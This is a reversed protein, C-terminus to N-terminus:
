GAQGESNVVPKEMDTGRISIAWFLAAGVVGFLAGFALSRLLGLWSANASVNNTVIALLVIVAFPLNGLIVGGWLIQRLRLPGRKLFWVVVPFAGCVTVLVAALGAALAISMAAGPRDTTGGGELTLDILPFAIFGLIAAAFPQVVFGAFLRMEKAVMPDRSQTM